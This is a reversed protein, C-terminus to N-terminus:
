NSSTLWLLENASLIANRLQITKFYVPPCYSSTRRILWFNNNFLRYMAIVNKTSDALRESLIASYDTCLLLIKRQILWVNNSFIRYLAIVNKTLPIRHQYVDFRFSHLPLRSQNGIYVSSSGESFISKTASYWYWTTM